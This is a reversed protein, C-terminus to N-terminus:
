PSVFKYGIGPESLVMKPNYPEEELKDRLRQTNAKIYETKNAYEPGWIRELLMQNSLVKGENVVLECLLRYETPTLKILRDMICVERTTFDIKLKGRAFHKEIATPEEPMSSRRLVDKVRALFESPSFPKTIYDDAGLELGKVKDKEENRATLIVLPVDSFNRIQLLVEFGDMDPLGLDLIIVDPFDAGALEIGKAGDTASIVGTAGDWRLEFCLALSEIVEPDDEIILVKM